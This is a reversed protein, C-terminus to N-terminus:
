QKVWTGSSNLIYAAKTDIAYAISGFAAHRDSLFGSDTIEAETDTLVELREFLTITNGVMEKHDFESKIVKYM